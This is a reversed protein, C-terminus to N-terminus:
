GEPTFSGDAHVTIKELRNLAGNRKSFHIAYAQIETGRQEPVCNDLFNTPINLLVYNGEVGVM